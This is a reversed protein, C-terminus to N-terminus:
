RTGNFDGGIISVQRVSKMSMVCYEQGPSAFKSNCFSGQVCCNLAKDCELEPRNKIEAWYCVLLFVCYLLLAIVILKYALLLKKTSLKKKAKKKAEVIRRDYNM